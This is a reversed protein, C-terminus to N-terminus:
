LNGDLILRVSSKKNVVLYIKALLYANFCKIKLKIVKVNIRFKDSNM